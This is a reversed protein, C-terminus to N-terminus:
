AFGTYTSYFSNFCVNVLKFSVDADYEDDGERIEEAREYFAGSKILEGTTHLWLATLYPGLPEKELHSQLCLEWM